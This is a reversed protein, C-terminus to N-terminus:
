TSIQIVQKETVIWHCTKDHADAPVTDILQVDFAAAVRLPKDMTQALLRDYFGAGYGLRNGARDFALGPMLVVDIDDISMVPADARPERIGWVGDVLDAHGDVRHLTLSKTPKDIRPLAVVKGECLARDFFAHTDLETGFSMYTLVTGAERYQPMQCLRTTIAQGAAQRVEPLMADRAALLQARLSKKAAMLESKSIM